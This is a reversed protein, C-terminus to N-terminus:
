RRESIKLSLKHLGEKAATNNPQLKLVIEYERKSADYHGAGADEDARRILQPVQKATFGEYEAVGIDTERAARHPKAAPAPPKPSEPEPKETVAQHKESPQSPNAPEPERATSQVAVKPEHRMGVGITKNSKRHLFLGLIAALALLATGGAMWLRKRKGSTDAGLVSPELASGDQDELTAVPSNETSV